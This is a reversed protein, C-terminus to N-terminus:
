RKRLTQAEPRQRERDAHLFTSRPPARLSLIQRTLKTRLAILHSCVLRQRPERSLPGRGVGLLPAPEQARQARSRMNVEAMRAERLIDLADETVTRARRLLLQANLLCELLQWQQGAREFRPRTRSGSSSFVAFRIPNSSASCRTWRRPPQDTRTLRVALYSIAPLSMDFGDQLAAEISRRLGFAAGCFGMGRKDVDAHTLTRFVARV